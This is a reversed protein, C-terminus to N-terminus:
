GPPLTVTITTGKGPTSAADVSGGHAHVISSVISLGLGFHDQTSTRAEDARFFREFVHELVEEPMGLGTDQVVIEASAGVNRVTVTVAAEPGAHARVNALLNLVVQTLRAADGRIVVPEAPRVLEITRSPEVARADSVANEALEALDVPAAGLPTGEDLRALLLLDEVLAGMRSAEQEIRGMARSMTEPSALAGARYLEAYGRISTLPTRLEHSADSVFRRLRDETSQQATFSAQLRELMSNFSTGLGGVETKPNTVEIRQSFDDAVIASTVKEMARLPRLGVAVLWQSLVALAILVTGGGILEVLLVHQLTSDTDDLSAAVIMVGRGPVTAVRLRYQTAGDVSDVTYRLSPSTMVDTPIKPPSEPLEGVRRLTSSVVSGSVDRFEVFFADTGSSRTSGSTESTQLGNDLSRTPDNIAAALRRDARETARDLNSDIEAILNRDLRIYVTFGIGTLAAAVLAVVVIGLRVRISM